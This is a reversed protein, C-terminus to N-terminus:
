RGRWRGLKGSVGPRSGPIHGAAAGFVPIGRLARADGAASRGGTPREGVERLAEDAAAHPDSGVASALRTDQEGPGRQGNRAM